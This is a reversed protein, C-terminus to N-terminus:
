RYSAESRSVLVGNFGYKRLMEQVVDIPTLNKPGLKVEIIAEENFEKLKFARYPIIKDRSPRFSCLSGNHKFFNSLLRWEKEESFAKTKLLYLNETLLLLKVSYDLYLNKFNANELQKQKETRNETLVTPPTLKLAGKNISDKIKKYTPQLLSKQEELEYEVQNLSFRYKLNERFSEALAQLYSKSFGISVGMADDAYGRWQSLLDGEESLCFGLGDLFQNFNALHSRLHQQELIKLGDRKAMESIIDAVLRGEM